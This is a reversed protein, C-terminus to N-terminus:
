TVTCCDVRILFLFTCMYAQLVHVIDCHNGSIM